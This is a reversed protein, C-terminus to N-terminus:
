QSVAVPSAIRPQWREPAACCLIPPPTALRLRAQEPALVVVPPVPEPCSKLGPM